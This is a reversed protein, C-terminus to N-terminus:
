PRALPSLHTAISVCEPADHALLSTETSADATSTDPAFHKDFLEAVRRARDSIRIAPVGFYVGWAGLNKAAMSMAGLIAGEKLEVGPLVLCGAYTGSFRRFVVPRSSVNRFQMPFTPNALYEGGGDDTSSYVFTRGSVGTCDEFVIREDGLLASHCGIHCYRGITIGGSGASLISFDDVRSFDGISINQPNYLSAKDSVRVDRGLAKFGVQKLQDDTMFAM